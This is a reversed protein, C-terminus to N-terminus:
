ASTARSAENAAKRVHFDAVKAELNVYDFLYGADGKVVVKDGVEWGDSALTDTIEGLAYEDGIFGGCSDIDVWEDYGRECEGCPDRHVKKEVSYYFANGNAWDSYEECTADLARRKDEEDSGDWWAREDDEGNWVLVGAVQVSDWPGFSGHGGNAVWWKGLGHEGYSLIALIDPDRVYEHPPIPQTYYAYYTALDDVDSPHPLNGCEVEVEDGDEDRYTGEWKCALYEDPDGSDVHRSNFSVLRAIGHENPSEADHDYEITVRYKSM